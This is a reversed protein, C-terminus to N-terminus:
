SSTSSACPTGGWPLATVPGGTAGHPDCRHSTFRWRPPATSIVMRRTAWPCSRSLSASQRAFLGTIEIQKSDGAGGFRHQLLAYPGALRLAESRASSPLWSVRGSASCIVTQEPLRSPMVITSTQRGPASGSITTAKDLLVPQAMTRRRCHAEGAGVHVPRTAPAQLLVQADVDRRQARASTAPRFRCGARSAVPTSALSRQAAAARPRDHFSRNRLLVRGWCERSGAAPFRAPLWRRRQAFAPCKM